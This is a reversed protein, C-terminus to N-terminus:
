LARGLSTGGTTYLIAEKAISAGTGDFRKQVSKRATYDTEKYQRHFASWLSPRMRLKIAERPVLWGQVKLQKENTGLSSIYQYPVVEIFGLQGEPTGQRPHYDWDSM